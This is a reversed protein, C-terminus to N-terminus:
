NEHPKPQSKGLNLCYLTGGVNVNLPGSLQFGELEKSLGLQTVESFSM